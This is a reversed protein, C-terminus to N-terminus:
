QGRVQVAFIVQECVPVGGRCTRVVTNEHFGVQGGMCLALRGTQAGCRGECVHVIPPAAERTVNSEGVRAVGGDVAPGQLEVKGAVNGIDPVGLDDAVHAIVIYDLVGGPVGGNGGALADTEPEV